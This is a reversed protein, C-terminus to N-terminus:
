DFKIRELEFPLPRRLIQTHINGVYKGLFGILMLQFSAFLFIDFVLPVTGLSMEDWHMIKPILYAFATPLSILIM